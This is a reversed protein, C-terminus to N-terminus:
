APVLCYVIESWVQGLLRCLPAERRLPKVGADGVGSLGQGRGRVAWWPPLARRRRAARRRM